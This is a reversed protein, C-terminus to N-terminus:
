RLTLPSPPLALSPIRAKQYSKLLNRKTNFVDNRLIDLVNYVIIAMKHAGIKKYEPVGQFYQSLLM